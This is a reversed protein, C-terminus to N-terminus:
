CEGKILSLEDHFRSLIMQYGPFLITNEVYCYQLQLSFLTKTKTINTITKTEEGTQKNKTNQDPSPYGQKRKKWVNHDVSRTKPNQTKGIQRLV